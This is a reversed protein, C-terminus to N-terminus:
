LGRACHLLLRRGNAQEHLGCVLDAAVTHRWRGGGVERRRHHGRSQRSPVRARACESQVSVRPRELRSYYERKVNLTEKRNKKGCKPPRLARNSAFRVGHQTSPVAKDCNSGVTSKASSGTVRLRHLVFLPALLFPVHMPRVALAAADRRCGGGV